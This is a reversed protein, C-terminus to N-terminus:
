KHKLFNSHQQKRCTCLDVNYELSKIPDINEYCILSNFVMFMKSTIPEFADTELMAELVKRLSHLKSEKKFYKGNRKTILMRDAVSWRSCIPDNNIEMRNRIYFPSVPVKERIMYHNHFLLLKITRTVEKGSPKIYINKSETKIDFAIGTSDSVRKIDITGFSRKHIGYRMDNIIDEAARGLPRCARGPSCADGALAANETLAMRCAYIFCNDREAIVATRANLNHFIMFRELDVEPLKNLWKWFKGTRKMRVLLSKLFAKMVKKPVNAKLLSLYRKYQKPSRFDKETLGGDLGRGILGDQDQNVFQICTLTRIAVPFFQDGSNINNNVDMDVSHEIIEKRIQDRLFQQTISDIMRQKWTGNYAYYISWKDDLGIKNFLEEVLSPLHDLLYERAEPELEALDFKFTGVPHQKLATRAMGLQRKAADLPPAGVVRPPSGLPLQRGDQCREQRLTLGNPRALLTNHLLNYIFSKQESNLQPKTHYLDPNISLFRQWEQETVRKPKVKEQYYRRAYERKRERREDQTLRVRVM